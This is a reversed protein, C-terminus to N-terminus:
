ATPLVNTHQSWVTRLMGKAKIFIQRLCTGQRRCVPGAKDGIHRVTGEWAEFMKLPADTARAQTREAGALLEAALQTRLAQCQAASASREIRLLALDQGLAAARQEASKLAEAHASAQVDAVIHSKLKLIHLFRM